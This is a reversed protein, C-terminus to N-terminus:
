YLLSHKQVSWPENNEAGGMSIQIFWHSNRHRNFGYCCWWLLVNENQWVTRWNFRQWESQVLWPRNTIMMYYIGCSPRRQMWREAHNKKNKNLLAFILSKWEDDIYQMQDSEDKAVTFHWPKTNRSKLEMTIHCFCCKYTQM